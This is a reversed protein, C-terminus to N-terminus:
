CFTNDYLIYNYIHVLTHFYQSKFFLLAYTLYHCKFIIACKFLSAYLM